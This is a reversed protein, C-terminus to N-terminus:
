DIQVIDCCQVYSHENNDLYYVNYQPPLSTLIISDDYKFLRKNVDNINYGTKM